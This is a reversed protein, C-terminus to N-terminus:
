ANYLTYFYTTDAARQFLTAWLVGPVFLVVALACLSKIFILASRECRNPLAKPSEPGVAPRVESLDENQQLLPFSEEM